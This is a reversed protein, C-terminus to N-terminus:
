QNRVRTAASATTAGSPRARDSSARRARHARSRPARAPHPQEAELDAHDVGERPQGLQLGVPEHAGQRQLQPQRRAGVHRHEAASTPMSAVGCAKAIAPAAKSQRM